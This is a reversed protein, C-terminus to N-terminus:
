IGLEKAIVNLKEEAVLNTEEYEEGNALTGHVEM